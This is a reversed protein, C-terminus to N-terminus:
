LREDIKKCCLYYRNDSVWFMYNPYRERYCPIVKTELNYKGWGRGIEGNKCIAGDEISLCYEGKEECEKTLIEFVCEWNWFGRAM